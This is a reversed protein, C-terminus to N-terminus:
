KQPPPVEEIVIRSISNWGSDGDANGYGKCNGVWFGVRVIGKPIKNCCGEIHRHRHINQGSGKAMYFVGDIALPKNCEGGNFTFYWRKCCNNCSAIRLNGGYFIKLSSDSHKKSFVCDQILGNDKLDRRNWACQKWNSYLGSDSGASGRQGPAGKAGVAGTSGVDGKAGPIGHTGPSGPVGPIGPIGNCASSHKPHKGTKNQHTQRDGKTAQRTKTPRDTEWLM